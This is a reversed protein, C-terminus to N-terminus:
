RAAPWCQRRCATTGTTPTRKRDHWLHNRDQPDMANLAAQEAVVHIVISGSFTEDSSSPCLPTGCRCALRDAGAAIAGLADARRQGVTRPDDDCVARAIAALRRDLLEAHTAYLRGWMSRTGTTDDPKGFEVNRAAQQWWIRADRDHKEILADIAQELRNESLRGWTRASETIGSDISAMAEAAVVLYTRWSIASVLRASIQGNLFLAAV